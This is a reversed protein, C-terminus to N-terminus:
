GIESVIERAKELDREAYVQTASLTAHGLIIKAVEIGYGKRLVTAANHRLQHPHWRHAKRWRRLEARDEATLRGRWAKWTEDKRKALPTPPLFARDCARYIALRYAAVRYRGGRRRRPTQNPRGAARPPPMPPKRTRRVAPKRPAGHERPS